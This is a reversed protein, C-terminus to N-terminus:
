GVGAFQPTIRRRATARAVSGELEFAIFRTESSLAITEQTSVVLQHRRDPADVLELVARVVDSTRSMFSMAVVSFPRWPVAWSLIRAVRVYARIGPSVPPRGNEKEERMIRLQGVLWTSRGSLIYMVADLILLLDAVAIPLAVLLIVGLIAYLGWPAGLREAGIALVSVVTWALAFQLIALAIDARAMYEMYNRVKSLSKKDM